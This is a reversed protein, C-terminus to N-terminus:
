LAGKKPRQGPLGAVPQLAQHVPSSGGTDRREGKKQNHRHDCGESDSEVPNKEVPKAEIVGAALRRQVILWFAERDALSTRM